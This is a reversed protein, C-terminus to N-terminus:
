ANAEAVKTYSIYAAGSFSFALGVLVPTTMAVDDFFIFGVYTLVVDKLTGSINVAVPGALKICMLVSLTIMIGSAGSICVLYIFTSAEPHDLMKVMDFFENNYLTIALCTPFGALAFFFNIEFPSIKKDANYKEVVVNYFAQSFNNAWILLFGLYDDSLSEYGAIIAGLSIM